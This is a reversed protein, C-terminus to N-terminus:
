RKNGKKNKGGRLHLKPCSLIKVLTYSEKQKCPNIDAEPNQPHSVDEPCVWVCLGQICLGRVTLLCAMHM